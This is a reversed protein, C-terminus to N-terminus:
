NLIKNEQEDSQKVNSDELESIWEEVEDLRNNIGELIYKIKTTTNKMESQNKETHEMEKNFAESLDEVSEEFGTLLKIVM